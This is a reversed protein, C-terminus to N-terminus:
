SSIGTRVEGPLIREDARGDAAAAVPRDHEGARVTRQLDWMAATSTSVGSRSTTSSTRTPISRSLRLSPINYIENTYLFGFTRAFGPDDPANVLRTSQDVGADYFGPAM